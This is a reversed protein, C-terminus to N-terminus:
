FQVPGRLVGEQRRRGGAGEQADRGDRRDDQHGKPKLCIPDVSFTGRVFCFCSTQRSGMLASGWKDRESGQRLRDEQGQAGAHYHGPPGQGPM